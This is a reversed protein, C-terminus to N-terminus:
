WGVLLVKQISLFINFFTIFYALKLIIVMEFALQWLRGSVKFIREVLFLAKFSQVGEVTDTFNPQWSYPPIIFEINFFIIFGLNLEHTHNIFRFKVRLYLKVDICPAHVQFFNMAKLRTFFLLLSLFM